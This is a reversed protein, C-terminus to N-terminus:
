PNQGEHAVDLVELSQAAAAWAAEDLLQPVVLVASPAAALSQGNAGTHEIAALRPHIYPAAKHAIEAAQKWAEFKEFDDSAARAAQTFERMAEIMVELPTQGTQACQNAIERTKINAAGKPRGANVRSGGKKTKPKHRANQQFVYDLNEQMGM